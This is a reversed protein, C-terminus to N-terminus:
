QVWAVAPKLTGLATLSGMPTNVAPFCKSVSPLPSLGHASDQLPSVERTKSLDSATSTYNGHERTHLAISVFGSM